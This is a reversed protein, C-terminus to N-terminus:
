GKCPQIRVTCFQAFVKMDICKYLLGCPEVGCEVYLFLMFVSSAASQSIFPVTLMIEFLGRQLSSSVRKM